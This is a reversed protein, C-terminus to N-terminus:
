YHAALSPPVSFPTLTGTTTDITFASLTSSNRNAVYVFEVKAGSPPTSVKSGECGTLLFGSLICATVFVCATVKM